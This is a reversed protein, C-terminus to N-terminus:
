LKRKVLYYVLVFLVLGFLVWWNEINQGFLLVEKALGIEYNLPMLNSVAAIFGPLAQIPYFIGSVLMLPFAIILSFLVAIGENESIIGIIFGILSNIVAVAVIFEILSLVGFSYAAGTVIFLLYIILFQIATVVVFFVLKAFIYLASSTSSKVRTIFLSKKDYIISTSALMLIVFLALIPFIFALASDKTSKDSLPMHNVWVPNVIFETDLEELDKLDDDIERAKDELKSSLKISNVVIDTSARVASVKNSVDKNIADVVAREFPELSQEVKWALLNSFAVDTNDYYINIRSQKLNEINSTFGNPIEIGMSFRGAQIGDRIAVQCNSEDENLYVVSFDDIQDIAMRSEPTNDYNCVAVDIKYGSSNLFLLFLAGIILPLLVFIALYKKRKYMLVFDKKLFGYFKLPVSKM